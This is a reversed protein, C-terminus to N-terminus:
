QFILNQRQKTFLHTSYESYLSLYLMLAYLLRFIQLGSCNFCVGYPFSLSACTYERLFSLLSFATFEETINRFDECIKVDFGWGSAINKIASAIGDDDEVIYLKYIM